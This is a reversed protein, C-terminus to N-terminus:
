NELAHHRVSLRRAARERIRADYADRAIVWPDAMAFCEPCADDEDMDFPAPLRLHM